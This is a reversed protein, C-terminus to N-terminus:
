PSIPYRPAYTIRLRPGQGVSASSHLRLEAFNTGEPIQQLVLTTPRRNDLTWYTLVSTVDILVTDIPAIAFQTTDNFAPALPSKAGFDALVPAAIVPFADAATGVLQAAAIFELTARVIRSSDRIARPLAIRMITRVSPVGGIVLDSGIPLSPPDFVFSDFSSLAAPRSVHIIKQSASDMRVYWTFLPGLGQRERAGIATSTPGNGSVRIGFAVKGTDGLVLPVQLTDLAMRLFVRDNAKDLFASDHTVPDFYCPFGACPAASKALLSDLNVTRVAPGAFAGDLDHFATTTDITLPLAYLSVTLDVATDRRTITIALRASDAGVLVATTTDTGIGLRNSVAPFRFIPRSEREPTSVALLYGADDPNVYGNPRSFASDETIAGPLITDTM